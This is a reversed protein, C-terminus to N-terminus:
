NFFVNDLLHFAFSLFTGRTLTFTRIIWAYLEQLVPKPKCPDSSPLLNFLFPDDIVFEKPFEGGQLTARANCPEKHPWLVVFHPALSFTTSESIDRLTEPKQRLKVLRLLWWQAYLYTDRPISISEGGYSIRRKLLEEGRNRGRLVKASTYIRTYGTYRYHFRM